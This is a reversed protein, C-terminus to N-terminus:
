MEQCYVNEHNTTGKLVTVSRLASCRYQGNGFQPSSGTLSYKGVPLQLTFKGTSPVSISFSEGSANRATVEGGSPRPTGPSPGGTILLQGKVSADYRPTTSHLSLFVSLAGVVFLSLTTVVVRSRM